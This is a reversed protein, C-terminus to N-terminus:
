KRRLRAAILAVSGLGLMAYTSPEPVGGTNGPNVTAQGQLLFGTPSPVPSLGNTVSAVIRVTSGGSWNVTGGVMGFGSGGCTGSGAPLFACGAGDLTNGPHTFTTGSVNSGAVYNQAVGDVFVQITM